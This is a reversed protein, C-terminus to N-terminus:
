YSLHDLLSVQGTQHAPLTAAMTCPSDSATTGPGLGFFFSEVFREAAFPSLGEYWLRATEIEPGILHHIRLRPM